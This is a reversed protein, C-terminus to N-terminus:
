WSMPIELQRDFDQNYPSHQLEYNHMQTLLHNCSKKDGGNNQWIQAVTTTITKKVCNAANDTVLASVREPGIEKIIDTIQDALFEGTYHDDSYDHLAYLYQERNPTLIIYNYISIGNLNTWGDLALTLNESNKIINNINDNIRATEQNLLRGSLLESSPLEYGPRM